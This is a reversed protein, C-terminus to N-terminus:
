ETDRIEVDTSKQKFVIKNKSNQRLLASTFVLDRCNSYIKTIIKSSVTLTIRERTLPVTDVKCM